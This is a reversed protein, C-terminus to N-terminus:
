KKGFFSKSLIIITVILYVNKLLLFLGLLHIEKTGSNLLLNLKNEVTSETTNSFLRLLPENRSPM